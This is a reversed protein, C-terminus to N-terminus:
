GGSATYSLAEFGNVGDRWWGVGGEGVIAWMKGDGTAQACDTSSPAPPGTPHSHYYGVVQLGGERADRHADILAQPDIEFHTDPQLHVNACARVQTIRDDLGLLLGCCELPVAAAAEALLCEIVMSSLETTM